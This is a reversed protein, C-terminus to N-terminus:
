SSSATLDKKPKIRNDTQIKTLNKKYEENKEEWKLRVVFSNKTMSRNECHIWTNEIPKLAFYKQRDFSPITMNM